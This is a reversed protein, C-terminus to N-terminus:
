TNQTTFRYGDPLTVEVTDGKETVVAGDPMLEEVYAKYFKKRRTDGESEKVSSFQIKKIEYGAEQDEVAEKKITDVVAFMVKFINKLDGVMTTFSPQGWKNLVGFSIDYTMINTHPRVSKGIQIEYENKDTKFSYTDGWKSKRATDPGKSTATGIEKLIDGFRIM